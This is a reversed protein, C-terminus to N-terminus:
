MGMRSRRHDDATEIHRSVGVDDRPVNGAREGSFCPPDAPHTEDLVGPHCVKLYVLPPDTSDDGVLSRDAALLGQETGVDPCADDTLLYAQPDGQQCGLVLVGDRFAQGFEALVGLLPAAILDDVRDQPVLIERHVKALM